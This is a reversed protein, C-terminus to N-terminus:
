SGTVNVYEVIVRTARHSSVDEIRAKEEHFLALNWGEGVASKYRVGHFGRTKIFECLYQSPTYDVGAAGPLIPRALDDGLQELFGIDARLLGVEDEDVL